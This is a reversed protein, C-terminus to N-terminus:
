ICTTLNFYSFDHAAPLCKFIINKFSPLTLSNFFFTLVELGIPGIPKKKFRGQSAAKDIQARFEAMRHGYAPPLSFAEKRM